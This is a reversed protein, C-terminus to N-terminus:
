QNTVSDTDGPAGNTPNGHVAAAAVERRNTDICWPVPAHQHRKHSQMGISGGAACEVVSM